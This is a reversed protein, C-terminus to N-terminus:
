WLKPFRIGFGTHAIPKAGSCCSRSAAGAHEAEPNKFCSSHLSVKVCFM